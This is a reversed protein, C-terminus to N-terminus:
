PGRAAAEAKPVFGLRDIAAMVVFANSREGKGTLEVRSFPRLALGPM